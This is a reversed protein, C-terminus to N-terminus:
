DRFLIESDYGWNRLLITFYSRAKGQAEEILMKRLETNSTVDEKLSECMLEKLRARESPTIDSRLGTVRYHEEKFEADRGLYATEVAPLTLTVLHRSDDIKVDDDRLKSLDIYAELYTNYSYVGIRKGVKLGNIIAEIGKTNADDITGVKNLSMEALVLRQMDKLESLVPIEKEEKPKCGCTILAPVALSLIFIRKLKM